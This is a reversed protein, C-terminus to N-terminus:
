CRFALASVNRAPRADNIFESGQKPDIGRAVQNLAETALERAEGLGPASNGPKALM